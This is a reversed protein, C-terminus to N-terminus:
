SFDTVPNLDPMPFIVGPVPPMSNYAFDLDVACLPIQGFRNKGLFTGRVLVDEMRFSLGFVAARAGRPIAAIEEQYALPSFVLRARGAPRMSLAPIIRPFGDADVYSIFKLTDPRLFFRHSWANLVEPGDHPVAFRRGAEALALSAAVRAYPLGQRPTVERLDMYHVTHIGFYANYRFMPLTNYAEFEPGQTKKGTWTATGRWIKRDMTLVLFAANGNQEVYKKSRGECFQGFTLERDSKAMLSTILTVHPLGEPSITALLAVKAEQRFADVAEPSLETQM